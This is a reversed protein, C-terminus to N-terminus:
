YDEIKVHVPNIISSGPKNLENFQQQRLARRQLNLNQQQAIMNQVGGFFAIARQQRAYAEYQSQQQQAYEDFKAQQEREYRDIRAQQAESEQQMKLNRFTTRQGLEDAFMICALTRVRLIRKEQKSLKIKGLPQGNLDGPLKNALYSGMDIIDQDSMKEIDIKEYQLNLVGSEEIVKNPLREKTVKICEDFLVNKAIEDGRTEVDLSYFDKIKRVLEEDTEKRLADRETEIKNNTKVELNQSEYSSFNYSGCKPCYPTGYKVSGYFGCNYCKGLSDAGWTCASMLLLFTVTMIYQKM